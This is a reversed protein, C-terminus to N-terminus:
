HHCRAGADISIHCKDFAEKDIDKGNNSIDKRHHLHNDVYDVYYFTIYCLFTMKVTLLDPLKQKVGLNLELARLNNDQNQGKLGALVM